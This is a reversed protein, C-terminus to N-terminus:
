YTIIFVFNCVAYFNIKEHQAFRPNLPLPRGGGCLGAPYSTTLTRVADILLGSIIRNM